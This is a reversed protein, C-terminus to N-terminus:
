TSTTGTRVENAVVDLEALLRHCDGNCHELWRLLLAIAAKKVSDTRDQLGRKLLAVRQDV